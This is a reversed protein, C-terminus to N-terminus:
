SRLDSLDDCAQSDLDKDLLCVVKEWRNNRWVKGTCAWGDVSRFKSINFQLLQCDFEIADDKEDEDEDYNSIALPAVSLASVAIFALLWYFIKM